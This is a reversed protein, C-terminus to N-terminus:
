KSSVFAVCMPTPISLKRGSFTLKGSEADVAFVSIADSRQGAVLLWRGSPDLAFNRPIWIEAPVTDVRTLTGDSEIAFVTLSDRGRETLDRNACYVFRGSPHVRIESCSMRDLDAEAPLTSIIQGRELLGTEPDCSFVAVTLSLENLVYVHDGGPGFKLHRPGSGPPLSARGVPTLRVSEADLRYVLVEDTGLDVAYAFGNRPGAYISHAHPGTQRTEHVSRGAHQHASAGSGLRGDREIGLAAVSGSGYNAVMLVRGTADVSVHCPGQGESPRYGLPELSGDKAIRFGAVGGRREPGPLRATAYLTDTSPSLAVFGAGEVRAVHRPPTLEGTELDLTSLYVGAADGRAETGFYVRVTEPPAACSASAVVLLLSLAQSRRM